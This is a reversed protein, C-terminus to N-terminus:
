PPVIQAPIPRGMVKAYEAAYLPSEPFEETLERLLKQALPNQKERRAALALMIKAFPKLYRGGKATKAVQEMGLKKDGHIGGFWLMARFGANLSGIIYNASGLAVYADQADPRLALLTKAHVNAEKLRKLAELNHKRLIMDADSEMGASLTLAYLAETDAPNKALRYAALKRTRRVADDFGKMLEPDPEGDIGHLFKKESLFFDSTLVNQRYFEEFLYSAAVCVEGFPEGPHQSEWATFQARAEPFKQIYLLRFSAMLEPVSMFAPTEDIAEARTPSAAPTLLLFSVVSLIRWRM